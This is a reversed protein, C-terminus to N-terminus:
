KPFLNDILSLFQQLKSRYDAYVLQLQDDLMQPKYDKDVVRILGDQLLTSLERAEDGSLDQGNKLRNLLKKEHDTLTRDSGPRAYAERLLEIFKKQWESLPVKGGDHSSLRSILTDAQTSLPGYFAALKKLEEADNISFEIGQQHAKVIVNFVGSFGQEAAVRQFQLGEKLNFTSPIFVPPPGSPIPTSTGSSM